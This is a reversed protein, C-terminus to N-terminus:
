AATAEAARCIAALMRRRLLGSIPRIVCWYPAFRLLAARDAYAVRTETILEVRRESIPRAAVSLALKVTGPDRQALFASADALPVLEISPRWLWGALGYVIEDPAEEILTFSEIGFRSELRPSTRGSRFPVVRTIERVAILCRFLADDEPKFSRAAAMLAAVPAESERSHWERFLGAAVYRDILPM